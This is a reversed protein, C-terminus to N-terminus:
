KYDVWNKKKTSSQALYQFDIDSIPSLCERNYRSQTGGHKYFSVRYEVMLFKHNYNLLASWLGYM